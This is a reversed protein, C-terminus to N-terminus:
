GFEGARRPESGTSRSPRAETFSGYGTGYRNGAAEPHIQSFIIIIPFFRGHGSTGVSVGRLRSSCHLSSTSNKPLISFSKGTIPPQPSSIPEKSSYGTLRHMRGHLPPCSPDDLQFVKLISSSNRGRPGGGSQPLPPGGDFLQPPVGASSKRRLSKSQPPEEVAKPTRRHKPSFVPKPSYRPTM